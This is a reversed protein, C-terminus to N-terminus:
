KACIAILKKAVDFMEDTVHSYIRMTQEVDHGLLKATTKFDLGNAILNTAYTHRLEHATINFNKKLSADLGNNLSATNNTSIIRRNINIPSNSKILELENLISPSVPVTRFSNTSKLTGFGYEGTEKLLKWQKNVSIYGKDFDIDNWTLGSIEGMRLGAKSAILISIYYNLSYSERSKYFQILKKLEKSNLAKKESNSKDKPITVGKLLPLKLNYNIGVWKIFSNFVTHSIKITSIALKNKVMENVCKQVDILNLDTIKNNDLASYNALRQKYTNYTAPERHLQIHALYESKLEYVTYLDFDTNFSQNSKLEDIIKDAALKALSKKKGCQKTKQKWKGDKDKFRVM